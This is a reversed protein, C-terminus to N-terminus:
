KKTKKGKEVVIGQTAETVRRGQLDYRTRGSAGTAITRIGELGNFDFTLQDVEPIGEGKLIYVQNAPLTTAALPQMAATNDDLAKVTYMSGEEVSMPLLNGQFVPSTIPEGQQLLDITLEYTTNKDGKLVVPSGAPICLSEVKVLGVVGTKTIGNATYAELGNPLVVGFDLNLPALGSGDTTISITKAAELYWKANAETTIGTRLNSANSANLGYSANPSGVFAFKFNDRNEVFNVAGNSKEVTGIAVSNTLPISKFANGQAQIIYGNGSPVFTWVQDAATSKTRISALGGQGITLYPKASFTTGLTRVRYATNTPEFKQYKINEIKQLLEELESVTLNATETKSLEEAKAREDADTICGVIGEEIALQKNLNSLTTKINQFQEILNLKAMGETDAPKMFLNDCVEFYCNNSSRTTPEIVGDVAAMFNSGQKFSFTNNSLSLSVEVPTDSLMSEKSLDLFKKAGINYLYYKGTLEMRLIMWNRYPDTVDAAEGKAEPIFITEEGDVQGVGVAQSENKTRLLYAHFSSIHERNQLAYYKLPMASKGLSTIASKLATKDTVNGNDYVSRLNELDDAAYGNFKNAQSLLQEAFDKLDEITSLSGVLTNIETSKDKVIAENVRARLAEINITDVCTYDTMVPYTNASDNKLLGFGGTELYFANNTAGTKGHGYDSRSHREGTGQTHGYGASNFNYWKGSAMSRMCGNRYYARRQVNGGWGNWNELFSYLGGTGLNYNRGSMRHTAIYRWETASAPKYWASLLTNNYIITDKGDNIAVFIDEPQSMVVYQVWEGATWWHKSTTYAKTGTGEGGFREIIISNGKDLSGSRLYDPLNKDEDTDGNDWASFIVTHWVHTYDGDFRQPMQQGMYWGTAGVTMAYTSLIQKDPPVMGEMYIADFSEGSPCGASTNSTNYWLHVSPAMFNDNTAVKATTTRQFLLYDLSQVTTSGNRSSVQIEYWGDKPITTAPILEIINMKGKEEATVTNVCLTDGTARNILAMNLTATRSTKTKMQLDARITGKPMHAYYCIVARYNSPWVTLSGTKKIAGEHDNFPQDNLMFWCHGGPITDIVDKFTQATAAFCLVGAFMSLLLKKM